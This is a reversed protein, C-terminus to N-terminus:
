DNEIFKTGISIGIVQAGPSALWTSLWGGKFSTYGTILVAKDKYIKKM